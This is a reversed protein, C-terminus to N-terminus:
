CVVLVQIRTTQPRRMTPKCMHKVAGQMLAGFRKCMAQVHSAHTSRTDTHHPPPAWLCSDVQRSRSGDQHLGDKQWCTGPIYSPHHPRCQSQPTAVAAAAAVYRAAGAACQLCQPHPNSQSKWGATCSMGPATSCEPATARQSMHGPMCQSTGLRLSPQPAVLDLPTTDKITGTAYTTPQIMATPKTICQLRHLLWQAPAQQAAPTNRQTCTLMAGDALSAFHQSCHPAELLPAPAVHQISQQLSCCLSHLQRRAQLVTDHLILAAAICPGVEPRCPLSLM